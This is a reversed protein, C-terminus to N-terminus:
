EKYMSDSVNDPHEEKYKNIVSLTSSMVSTLDKYFNKNGIIYFEDKARSAAVNMINPESFAWKAAGPENKDAGLVLIVISAEKGQFTHITGVNTARNNGKEYRTFQVFEDTGIELSKLRKKLEQATNNFPTIVFVKNDESSLLEPDDAIKKRLINCLMNYQKESFKNNSRDEVNYWGFKGYRPEAQVMLDDYAIKNSIDFMPSQCRRHVWLPIGIWDKEARNCYYGYESADDALSQVSASESLYKEPVGFHESIIQLIPAELIWIPKIQAPDGVAMVHKSRFIAGVAAQPLAQGAEDIFLHGISNSGLNRCMLIISSFTSSIVPIVFNIWNWAIEITNRERLYKNQEQWIKKAALINNKNQFIFEKRVRLAMIFLKSQDKRFERNFWPNSKQFDSYNLTSDFSSIKSEDLEKRIRRIKEKIQSQKNCCEVRYEELDKRKRDMEIQDKLNADNLDSIEIKTESLRNRLENGATTLQTLETQLIRLNKRYRKKSSLPSFFGPKTASICKM